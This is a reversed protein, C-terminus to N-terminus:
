FSNQYAAEVWSISALAVQANQPQLLLIEGPMVNVEGGLDVRSPAPGQATATGLGACGLFEVWNLANIAYSGGATGNLITASGFVVAVGSATGVVGPSTIMGSFAGLGFTATLTGLPAGILKALGWAPTNALNTGTPCFTVAVPILKVPATGAVTAPNAIGLCGSNAVALGATFALATGLAATYIKGPPSTPGTFAWTLPM